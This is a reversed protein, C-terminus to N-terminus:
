GKIEHKKAYIGMAAFVIAFVVLGVLSEIAMEKREVRVPRTVRGQPRRGEPINCGPHGGAPGSHVTEGKGERNDADMGELAAFQPLMRRHTKRGPQLTAPQNRSERTM